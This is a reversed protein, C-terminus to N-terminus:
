GRNKKKMFHLMEFAVLVNDTINRGPVFASQNESIIHPLITKLRNALVKAIIKYLVNCLAIPRLDAMIEVNDKKPILVLTTDNLNAPFKYETLWSKCCNFIDRGLLDWFQQFFPNFGDPGASKDPHMQKIAVSFEEFKLEAVLKENQANSIVGAESENQNDNEVGLEGGAFIKRFYDIVFSSMENHNTIEDGENSRLQSIYNTKKRKTAATHFYKSNTDGETLWFTKARQRWYLEEHYLLDDLKSREVFYEKVGQEDSRNVLVNLSAKLNKVKERFKNFFNRGWKAMFASLSLLKPLM